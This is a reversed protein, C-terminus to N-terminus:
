MLTIFVLSSEDHVVPQIFQKDHEKSQGIGWCGELIYHIVNETVQDRHTMDNDVHIVDQDECVVDGCMLENGM